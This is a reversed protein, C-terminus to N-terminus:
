LLIAKKFSSFRFNFKRWWWAQIAFYTFFIWCMEFKNAVYLLLFLIKSISICRQFYFSCSSNCNGAVIIKKKDPLVVNTEALRVCPTPTSVSITSSTTTTQKYYQCIFDRCSQASKLSPLLLCTETPKAFKQDCITM